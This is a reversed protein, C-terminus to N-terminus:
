LYWFQDNIDNAIITKSNSEICNMFMYLRKSNSWFLSILEDHFSEVYILNKYRVIENFTFWIEYFFIMDMAVITDFIEIFDPIRRNRDSISKAYRWLIIWCNNLSGVWEVTRVM